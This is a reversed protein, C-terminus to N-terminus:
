KHIKHAIATLKEQIMDKEFKNTGLFYASALVCLISIACVTFFSLVGYSMNTYVLFPLVFSAIAVLLIPAVVKRFYEMMPLDILNRM